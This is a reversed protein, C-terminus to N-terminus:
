SSLSLERGGTRKWKDTRRGGSYPLVLPPDQQSFKTQVSKGLSPSFNGRQHRDLGSSKRKRRRVGRGYALQSEPPQITRGAPFRLIHLTPSGSSSSSSQFIHPTREEKKRVLYTSPSLFTKTPLVEQEKEEEELGHLLFFDPGTILVVRWRRKSKGFQPLLPPQPPDLDTLFSGSFPSSSSSSFSSSFTSM